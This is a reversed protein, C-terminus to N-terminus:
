SIISMFQSLFGRFIRQLSSSIWWSSYGLFSCDDFYVGSFSTRCLHERTVPLTRGSAWPAWCILLSISSSLDARGTVLTMVAGQAPSHRKQNTKLTWLLSKGLKNKSFQYKLICRQKNKCNPIIYRSMLSSFIRSSELPWTVSVSKPRLLSNTASLTLIQKVKFDTFRSTFLSSFQSYFSCKIPYYYVFQPSKYLNAWLFM